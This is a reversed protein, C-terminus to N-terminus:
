KLETKKKSHPTERETIQKVDVKVANELIDELKVLFRFFSNSQM